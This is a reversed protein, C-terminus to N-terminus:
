VAQKPNAAPIEVAGAEAKLNCVELDKQGTAAYQRCRIKM